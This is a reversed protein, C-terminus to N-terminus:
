HSKNKILNAFQQLPDVKASTKNIHGQTPDVLIKAQTNEKSLKKALKEAVTELEDSPVTSLIHIADEDFNNIRALESIKLQKELTEVQEKSPKEPAQINKLANLEKELKEAKKLSKKARNQWHRSIKVSVYKEGDIKKIYSKGQQEPQEESTERSVNSDEATEELGQTEDQKQAEDSVQVNESEVEKNEDVM